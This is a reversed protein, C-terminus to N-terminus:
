YDADDGERQAIEENQEPKAQYAAICGNEPDAPDPTAPVVFAIPLFTSCRAV